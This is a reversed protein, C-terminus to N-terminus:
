NAAPLFAAAAASQAASCVGPALVLVGMLVFLERRRLVLRM